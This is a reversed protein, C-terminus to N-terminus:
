RERTRGRLGSGSGDAERDPDDAEGHGLDVAPKRVPDAERLTGHEGERGSDADAAGIAAVLRMVEEIRTQNRSTARSVIWRLLLFLSGVLALYVPLGPILGLAFEEFVLPLLVLSVVGQAIYAIIAAIPATWTLHVRSTGDTEERVSFRGTGEDKQDLIWERSAGRVEVRGIQGMVQRVADLMREWAHDSVSGPLVLDMTHTAPGGWWTSRRASPRSQLETAATVVLGPDLGSEEALTQLERLTLGTTPAQLRRGQLEATRQLIRAIEEEDFLRDSPDSPAM